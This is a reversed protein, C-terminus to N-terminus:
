LFRYEHKLRDYDGGPDRFYVKLLLDCDDSSLRYVNNNRGGPLHDLRTSGNIGARVCFDQLDHLDLNPNPGPAYPHLPRFFSRLKLGRGPGFEMMGSSMPM